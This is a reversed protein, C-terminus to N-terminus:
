FRSLNLQFTSSHLGRGIGREDTELNQLRTASARQEALELSVEPATSARRERRLDRESSQSQMSASVGLGTTENSDLSHSEM